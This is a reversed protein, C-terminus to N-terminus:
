WRDIEAEPRAARGFAAGVARHRVRAGDRVLLPAEYHQHRVVGVEAIRPFALAVIRRVEQIEPGVAVREADIRHQVRQSMLATRPAPARTAHATRMGTAAVFAQNTATM